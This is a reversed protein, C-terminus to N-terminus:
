YVGEAEDLDSETAVGIEAEFAAAAVASGKELVVGWLKVWDVWGVLAAGIEVGEWFVSWVGEASM